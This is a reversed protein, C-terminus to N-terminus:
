QEGKAAAPRLRAALQDIGLAALVVLPVEAPVRFRVAGYFAAAVITVLVFPGLLPVLVPDRRLRLAGFIALAALLWFALVGVLSLGYPRGEGQSLAAVQRPAYLSWTRGVRAAVVVPLRRAHDGIFEFAADRQEEAVESRDRGLMPVAVSCDLSWYGIVSGSYVDDCNSGLLVAGDGNSLLVPEDFRSLNYAIWPSVVLVAIGVAIGALGVRARWSTNRAILVAPFLVLPILLVLEGRALMALGCGVGAALALRWSPKRVLFVTALLTGAVTLAAFAEAMVIGDNMWLNPYLAAIAAALLGVRAGAVARGLLGILVVVGVGVVSVTLRMALESGDTARAIPALALVTLPPHDANEEDGFPTVFGRGDGVTEAESMYYFADYASNEDQTVTLVYTVRLALGAGAIVLLALAFRRTTMAPSAASVNSLPPADAAPM